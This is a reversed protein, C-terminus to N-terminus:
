KSNQENKNAFLSGSKDMLLVFDRHSLTRAAIQQTLLLQLEKKDFKMLYYHNPSFCSILLNNEGESKVEIGKILEETRLFHKEGTIKNYVYIGNMVGFEVRGGGGGVIDYNKVSKMDFIPIDFAVMGM